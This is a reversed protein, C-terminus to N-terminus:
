ECIIFLKIQKCFHATHSEIHLVMDAFTALVKNTCERHKSLIILPGGVHIAAWNWWNRARSYNNAQYLLRWTKLLKSHFFDYTTLDSSKSPQNQDVNRSILGIPFRDQLLDSFLNCTRDELVWRHRISAVFIGNDYEM